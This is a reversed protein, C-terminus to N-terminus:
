PLHQWLSCADSYKRCKILEPNMMYTGKRVKIHDNKVPVRKIIGQAILHRLGRNFMERESKTAPKGTTYTCLATDLDRTHKLKNFVEIASNPILTLRDFIDPLAQPNKSLPCIAQFPGWDEKMRRKILVDSDQPILYQITQNSGGKPSHQIYTGSQSNNITSSSM